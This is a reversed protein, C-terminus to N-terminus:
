RREPRSSRQRRPIEGRRVRDPALMRIGIAVCFAVALLTAVRQLAPTLVSLPVDGFQTRAYLWLDIMAVILTVAGLTATPRTQPRLLLGVVLALTAGGGAVSAVIVSTGHLVGFRDSPLLVVACVGLGAVAGLARSSLALARHGFLEPGVLWVLVLALGEVSMALRAVTAGVQNDGGNLSRAHLLDCLFNQWFAHGVRSTQFWTGGPYLWMAGLSLALFLANASLILLGTLHLKHATM